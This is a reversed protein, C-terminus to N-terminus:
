HDDLGRERLLEDVRALLEERGENNWIVEDALAAREDNGMQSALRRAADSESMGRQAVLRGLAIEPTVLVSWVEDLALSERHHARLLPIACFAASGTAEDLLRRMEVGVAPHTIDNLRRLATPDDFVVSAVFARDLRGDQDLIASGFADVLVNLLPRGPSTLDAYVEDADCADFGRARLHALVTSKGAGIGGAIAIRRM